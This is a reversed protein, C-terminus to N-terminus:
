RGVAIDRYVQLSEAQWFSMYEDETVQSPQRLNRILLRRSSRRQSRRKDDHRWAATGPSEAVPHWSTV